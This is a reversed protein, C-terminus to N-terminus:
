LQIFGNLVVHQPFLAVDPCVYVPICHYYSGAFPNIALLSYVLM